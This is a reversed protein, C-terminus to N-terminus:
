ALPVCSRQCQDDRGDAAPAIRRMMAAQAPQGVNPEGPHPYVYGWLLSHNALDVAAVCGSGTPCILVGDSYSPSVGALRRIADQAINMEVMALQQSWLVKGTAADLALLRIEDKIEAMVYLQGRLPLPPGLFFTDALEIADQGGLWWQVKGTSIDYAALKNAIGHTSPDSGRGGVVVFAQNQVGAVGLPLEELVFALNGDSSITGYAADDWIRQGYQAPQTMNNNNYRANIFAGNIRNPNQDNPEKEETTQWLRKGTKFDIALVNTATRMLVVDGVALPHLGSFVPVKHERYFTELETLAKKLPEDAVDVRWRFNLLPAGGLTAANRSPDGRFMAWRDTEVAAAMRQLGTSRALWAPADSDTDFWAVERGQLRLNATGKSGPGLRRKLDVLVQKCDESMGAQYYCAAQTLSLGPEFAEAAPGAERLRKLTLAGALPAGHDMQDLGLLYTAEYGAQTHFLRASIEALGAADGAAVAKNLRDRAEGGSRVEYLDLGERPMQGLLQQAQGKLSRYIPVKRDPQFFYDESSSLIQSLGELAEGYRNEKLVKQARNLAQMINREPAAFNGPSSDDDAAAGTSPVPVAQLRVRQGLVPFPWVAAVSIAVVPLLIKPLAGGWKEM